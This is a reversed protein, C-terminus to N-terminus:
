QNSNDFLVADHHDVESEVRLAVLPLGGDLGDKLCREQAKARDHHGCHSREKAADRESESAAGAGLQAPRQSDRDDAAKEEALKQREIRSRHNIKCEISQRAPESGSRNTAISIIVGRLSCGLSCRM